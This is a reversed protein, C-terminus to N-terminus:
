GGLAKLAERESTVIAFVNDFGLVEIVARVSETPNLLVLAGGRDETVRRARIFVGLGRSSTHGVDTLEVVIRDAGAALVGSMADDFQECTHADIDGRCRMMVISTGEVAQAEVSLKAM